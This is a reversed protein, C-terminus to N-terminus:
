DVLSHFTTSNVHKMEQIWGGHGDQLSKFSEVDDTVKVPDGVAFRIESDVQTVFDHHDFNLIPLHDPQYRGGSSHKELRLDVKGNAGVRYSFINNSPWKVQVWGPGLTSSPVVKGVGSVSGQSDHWIHPFTIM